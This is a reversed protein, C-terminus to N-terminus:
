NKKIGLQKDHGALVQLTVGVLLLLGIKIESIQAKRAKKKTFHELLTLCM